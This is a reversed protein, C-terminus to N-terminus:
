YPYRFCLDLAISLSFPERYYPTGDNKLMKLMHISRDLWMHINPEQYGVWVSILPMNCRKYRLRPPLEIISASFIWLKLKNSKCLGIGDIHFLLSIFNNNCKLLTKYCSAFPIDNFQGNAESDNSIQRKYDQIENYLRTSISKLLFPFNTDYIMTLKKKDFDPCFPCENKKLILERGCLLCISRKQYNEEINLISILEKMSRPLSNPTPLINNIFLLFKESQIKSIQSDRFLKILEICVDSTENRTYSHLQNNTNTSDQQSENDDPQEEESSESNNFSEFSDLMYISDDDDDDSDHEDWTNDLRDPVNMDYVFQNSLTNTITNVDRPENDIDDNVDNFKHQNRRPLTTHENMNFNKQRSLRRSLNYNDRRAHGQEIERDIDDAIWSDIDM